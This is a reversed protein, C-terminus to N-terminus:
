PRPRSLDLATQIEALARHQEAMLHLTTSGHTSELRARRRDLQAFTEQVADRFDLARVLDDLGAEYTERDYGDIGLDETALVEARERSTM